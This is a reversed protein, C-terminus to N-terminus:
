QEVCYISIISTCQSGAQNGNYSWNARTGGASGGYNGFAGAGSSASLWNNCSQGVPAGSIFKRGTWAARGQLEPRIYSQTVMSVDTGAANSGFKFLGERYYAVNPELVDPSLANNFWLLARWQKTDDTNIDRQCFDNAKEQATAGILGSDSGIGGNHGSNTVVMQRIYGADYVLPTFRIPFNLVTGSTDSILRMNFIAEPSTTVLAGMTVTVNWSAGNAFVGPPANSYAGGVPYVFTAGSTDYSLSNITLPDGNNVVTLQVSAWEGVPVGYLNVESVETTHPTLFVQLDIRPQGYFLGQVASYMITTASCGPLDSQTRFPRVNVTYNTGAILGTLDFTAGDATSTSASVRTAGNWVIIEYRSNTLTPDEWRLQASSESLWQFSPNIMPEWGPRGGTIITGIINSCILPLGTCARLSLYPASNPIPPYCDSFSASFSRASGDIGNFRPAGGDTNVRFEDPNPPSYSWSMDFTSIGTWQARFDTPAAPVGSGSLSATATFGYGGDSVQFQASKVGISTPQFKVQANWTANVGLPNPPTNLISFNSADAGQITATLNLPMSGTNRVALQQTVSEGVALSGFNLSSPTITAVPNPQTWNVSASNGLVDAPACSAITVYPRASFNYIGGVVLGSIDHSTINPGITAILNNNQYIKYGSRGQSLPDHSWTLTATSPGAYAVALNTPAAFGPRPTSATAPSSFQRGNGPDVFARVQFDINVLSTCDNFIFSGTTVNSGTSLVDNRVPLPGTRDLQFGDEGGATHTWSATGATPSTFSVNLGTPAALNLVVTITATTCNKAPPTFSDRVCFNISYPSGALDASTPNFTFLGTSGNLSMRPSPLASPTFFTLTQVLGDTIDQDTATLTFSLTNGVDVSQNSVAGMVPAYNAPRLKFQGLGWPSLLNNADSVMVRWWYNVGYSLVSGGYTIDTSRSNDDVTKNQLNSDWLTSFFSQETAVQVRYRNAADGEPDHHIFSFKLTQGTLDDNIIQAITDPSSPLGAQASNSNVFLAGPADPNTNVRIVISRTAQANFTDRTVITLNYDGPPVAALNAIIWSFTSTSPGPTPSSIGNFAAGNMAGLENIRLEAIQDGEPDAVGIELNLSAGVSRQFLYHPASAAPYINGPSRLVTIVPPANEPTTVPIGVIPDTPPWSRRTISGLSSDYFVTVWVLYRTAPSAVYPMMYSEGIVKENSIPYIEGLGTDLNEVYLIYGSNPVDTVDNWNISFGGATLNTVALQSNGRDPGVYALAVKVHRTHPAGSLGESDVGRMGVDATLENTNSFLNPDSYSFNVVSCDNHGGLGCDQACNSGTCLITTDFTGQGLFDWEHKDVTQNPDTEIVRGVFTSDITPEL